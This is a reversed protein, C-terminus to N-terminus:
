RLRPSGATGLLVVVSAVGVVPEETPADIGRVVLDLDTGGVLATMAHELGLRGPRTAADLLRDLAAVAPLDRRRAHHRALAHIREALARRPVRRVAALALARRTVLTAVTCARQLDTPRPAGLVSAAPLAAPLGGAALAEVRGRLHRFVIVGERPGDRLGVAVIDDASDVLGVWGGDTISRRTPVPAALTRLWHEAISRKRRILSTRNLTREIAAPVPRTVIEVESAAQGPRRVRGLRQHLRTPHWPLDVHVIRQAGQLDLGESAVETAVLVDPIKRRGKWSTREPGFAALVLERPLPHPGIGAAAGTVWATAPELNRRLTFATARHRTFCITPRRDALLTALAALWYRDLLPERLFRELLPLDETPPVEGSDPTGLLPWLVTQEMAPGVFSRVLRRSIGGADRSHRLLAAYRSLAARYAADSSAGADLLVAAILARTAPARGLRLSEVETAVRACRQREGSPLGLRTTRVAVQHAPAGSRIVLRQLAIPPESATALAELSPVGDLRLADDGVVVALLTLLDRRRNVIPTGTLLLVPRDALWTGLHRVRKTHRHRLRHAEDIVVLGGAQGTPLRRSFRELSQLEVAVKAQRAARRWQGHLVAPAVVTCGRAAAVGCALAVWTKGFGVREALIAGGWGALAAEARRWPDVQHPRLFEPAAASSRAVGRLEGLARVAETSQM